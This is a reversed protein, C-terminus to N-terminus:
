AAMEGPFQGRWPRIVHAEPATREDGGDRVRWALYHPARSRRRETKDRTAGGWGPRGEARLAGGRGLGSGGCLRVRGRARDHARASQGGGPGCPCGLPLLAAGTRKRQRGAAARPDTRGGPGFHLM